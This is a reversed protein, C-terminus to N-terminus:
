MFSICGFYVYVDRRWWYLLGVEVVNVESSVSLEDGWIKVDFVDVLRDVSVWKVVDVKVVEDMGGVNVGIVEVM